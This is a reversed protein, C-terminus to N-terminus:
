QLQRGKLFVVFGAVCHGLSRSLKKQENCKFYPHPVIRFVLGFCMDDQASCIPVGSLRIAKTPLPSALVCTSNEAQPFHFMTGQAEVFDFSGYEKRHLADRPVFTGCTSVSEETM